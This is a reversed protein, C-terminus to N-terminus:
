VSAGIIAIDYTVSSGAGSNAIRLLDGTGATVAYATASGSFLAFVAGPRVVVKDTADSVWNIFANTAAGGVLVNNTNAAAAVVVLGKIRAFTLTTGFPDALVGSLDLDESASAVLTRQAHYILDAQDAGTGSALAIAKKLKLPVSGTALGRVSTLRCDAEVILNSTLAM